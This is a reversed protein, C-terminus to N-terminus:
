CSSLSSTIRRPNGTKSLMGDPKCRVRAMSAPVESRRGGKLMADRRIHTNVCSETVAFSKINGSKCNQEVHM